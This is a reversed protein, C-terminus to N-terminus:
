RFRGQMSVIKLGVNDDQRIPNGIGAVVIKEKGVLWKKLEAKLDGVM